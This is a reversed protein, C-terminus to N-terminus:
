RITSVVRKSKDSWSSWRTGNSKLSKGGTAEIVAACFPSTWCTNSPRIFFRCFSFIAFRMVVVFITNRDIFGSGLFELLCDKEIMGSRSCEAEGVGRRPLLFGEIRDSATSPPM